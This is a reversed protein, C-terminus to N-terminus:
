LMNFKFKINILNLIKFKTDEHGKWCEFEYRAYESIRSKSVDGLPQSTYCHM